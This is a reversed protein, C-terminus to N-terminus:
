IEAPKTTSIIIKDTRKKKFPELNFTNNKFANAVIRSFHMLFFYNM